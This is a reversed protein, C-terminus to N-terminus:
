TLFKGAKADVFWPEKSYDRQYLRSTDITNTKADRTNVAILKGDLDVLLTFYYIGYLEIYKDMAKVIPTEEGSKYWLKKDQVVQNVGFAQVDGYREFLNRDIKDAIVSAITQYEEAASREMKTATNWMVVGVVVLPVFALIMCVVTIKKGISLRMAP